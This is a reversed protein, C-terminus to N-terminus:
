DEEAPKLSSKLRESELRQAGRVVIRQGSSLGKLALVSDPTAAGTEIRLKRFADSGNVVYVYSGNGELLVSSRPIVIGASSPASIAFSVLMQPHLRDSPNEIAIRVTFTRTDPDESRSIGAVEGPFRVGPFAATTVDVNAGPRVQAFDVDSLSALGWIAARRELASSDQSLGLNARKSDAQTAVARAQDREASAADLDQRAAIGDGYLRSLRQFNADALRLKADASEAESLVAQEEPTWPKAALTGTLTLTRDLASESVVATEIGAERLASPSLRVVASPESAQAM